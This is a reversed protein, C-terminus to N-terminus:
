RKCRTYPGPICKPEPHFLSDLWESLSSILQCFYGCDGGEGEAPDGGAEPKPPPTKKDSSGLLKIFEYGFFLGAAVFFWHRGSPDTNNVPSYPYLYDHLSSPIQLVGEFPDVSVFRGTGMDYYRARLYTLDVSQDFQEGAFLYSNSGSGSQNLLEGFAQYDYALQVNSNSDTILRTSGLGDVQYYTRASGDDQSLLDWGHSYSKLLGGNALYEEIVQAYQQQTKDILFRTEQGNVTAAVRIGDQDYEYSVTATTGGSSITAGALEGKANWRYEAETQGNAAKAILSGNNDYSYSITQGNLVEALLRDNVDYSYTTTGELSDIRKLRNGVKDYEFSITRGAQGPELIQEQTLRYLDDYSYLVKRGDAELVEKRNGVPDLTYRYSSLVGAVGRNELFTLRNLPDYDRTEVVGNAFSTRSLNGAADYDYDTLGGDPDRVTDIRNNRDHTYTTTGSPVIVSAVNGAADYTYSIQRGDPETRSLLRDRVDYLYNTIGRNDKATELEGTLTYTFSETPTGDSFAKEILRNRADYTYTTTVGNADVSRILNGIKDHITTKVQSGPMTSSVRRRLSDYTFTTIHGNADKQTTLNGVADYGYDTRQNLADVVATLRGLADYEYKTIRGAQDKEEVKRGLGDYSLTTFTGDAYTTKILRDLPDYAYTTTRGLPDTTSIRRGDDDYSHTTTHGEGDTESILRGAKDYGMSLRNGREDIEAVMRGARDYVMQSRPNDTLDAPTDDPHIVFEKRGLKDYTFRTARGLEDTSTIPRDLADYESRLRPNDALAAPTDDPLITEVLLGRSNYRYDTRRGLADTEAVKEGAKNYETKTIGRACGCSSGEPDAKEILRGQADYTYLTVAGKADTVTKVQGNGDYTFTSRAGTPDVLETVRGQADYVFTTTKGNADVVSKLLGNAEYAYTTVFGLADTRTKLNDKADYTYTTTFGLADTESALKNTATYTYTKTEGEGNTETLKNGRVDYSYSTTNGESDTISKLLNSDFYTRETIGGLADIEKIVNGREDFVRTTSNGLPDKVVQVRATPDYSLDLANGDADLIRKIRGQDDYETRSASRGLPDVVKSLYHPRISKYEMTTTNGTRDTVGVLEGQANYSYKIVKGEPDRIETIRGESDRSFRISQGTSSSIGSNSYTLNNGNRDTIDILGANQDYQYTDGAKTRLFYTSPNYTFPIFGPSATSGDGRVSVLSELGGPELSVDLTDFVGPDPRFYPRYLNGLLFVSGVFQPDFTFGVRRGEPNTLTVRTGVTFSNGFFADDDKLNRGDPASEQIQADQFSLDWGYGFDGSVQANLSSYSRGVQIPLGTLPITLDTFDLKFDAPKEESFLGVVTSKVDINGSFDQSIVRLVYNDNRFLSPDISALRANLTSGSGTAITVYDPDSAGPNGPEVLDAPALEVRWSDPDGTISGVLDTLKTLPKTPDFSSLDLSIQPPTKDTPDPVRVQLTSTGVNGSSDTASAQVTYSGLQSLVVSAQNPQNPMNPILSLPVGNLTLRVDQVTVNDTASLNLTLTEGPNFVTGSPRLSIVPAELDAEVTLQFAQTATAGSPNRVELAVAYAGLAGPAWSVVGASSIAMGAPGDLLKYTLGGGGPDSTQVAYTYTTGAFVSRVPTSTIVPISGNGLNVDQLPNAATLVISAGGDGGPVTQQYGSPVLERVTYPGYSLNTFRYQGAENTDATRPNDQATVRSPEGADLRRNNNVDLYVTVGPLGSESGDGSRDFTGDGDRDSWVTGRIEAKGPGLLSYFNNVEDCERVKGVGTGDDDAVVWVTQLPHSAVTLSVDEFDGIELRKSTLTTGLLQGGTRPDGDYFAVSVGAAVFISGSNGIRAQITSSGNSDSSRLYSTILDPAAVAPTDIVCDSSSFNLNNTEDTEVVVNDLDVVGWIPAYSFAMFTSLDASVTVSQGAAIPQTVEVSGLVTDLDQDYTKNYNRDEFFAVTFPKNVQDVGANRITASVPGEVSLLQPDVTLQDGDIKSIQLDHEGTYSTNRTIGFNIGSVEEGGKVTVIHENTLITLPYVRVHDLAPGAIGGEQNLSTFTLTTTTEGATFDFVEDPRWGMAEWTKGTTDFTFTKSQGNAEVGLTKVTPTSYPNGALDFLVRYTKGPITQLIQKVGGFGPTGDLDLSKLGNSSQWFSGYDITGQTVEWGPIVTSGKGYVDFGVAPGDEFSGNIAIDAGLVARSDPYTQDWGKPYDARIIYTGPALDNFFYKGGEDIEVTSPDDITTVQSPEGTDITKNNNLDLYVPIDARGPESLGFNLSHIEHVGYGAGTASTFGVYIDQQGLIKILDVDASVIVDGPTEEKDSIRVELKKAMADYDVWAHWRSGNNLREQLSAYSVSVIEGDINIGIHNGDPDIGGNFYTDFEVALSNRLGAYGIGFGAAGVNPTPSVIFAIGDAGIGDGDGIGDNNTISFVFQSHFSLPRGSSDQVNFPNSLLANGARFFLSETLRIVQKGDGLASSSFAASGALKIADRNNLFDAYAIIDRDKNGNLDEWVSGSITSTQSFEPVTITFNQRSAGGRGDSVELEIDYSAKILGVPKFSLEGSDDILCGEPSTIFGYALQDGDPDEAIVRYTYTPTTKPDFALAPTSTIKPAGNIGMRTLTESSRGQNGAVDTAILTFASSGASPMAVDSFSFRGLANTPKPLNTGQLLVDANVESQGRLTVNRESTIQDNLVGTDSEPALDFSVPPPTRDLTFSVKAVLSEVGTSSRAKVLLEHAGDPLSGQSLKNYAEVGISFMGDPKLTESIEQDNGGDLAAWLTAAGQSSGQVTPDQTIKDTNSRGTDNLLAATVTPATDDVPTITLGITALNSLNGALDVARYTFSDSTTDSGNHVYFTTGDAKVQLTGNSGSIAYFGAYTGSAQPTLSSLALGNVQAVKLSAGTPDDPSDTDGALLALNATTGGEALTASENDAVPATDDM